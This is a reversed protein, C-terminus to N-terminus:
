ILILIQILSHRKWFRLIGVQIFNRMTCGVQMMEPKCGSHYAAGGFHFSIAVKKNYEPLESLGVFIEFSGESHGILAVKDHKNHSLILDITAPMDIM